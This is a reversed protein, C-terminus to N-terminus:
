ALRKWLSRGAIMMGAGLMLVLVNSPRLGTELVAESHNNPNYYVDVTQGIDYGSASGGGFYIKNGTHTEGDVEYSYAIHNEKHIYSLVSTTKSASVFGSVKPWNTTSNNAAINPLAGYLIFVGILVPALSIMLRSKQYM